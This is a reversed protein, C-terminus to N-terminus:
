LPRGFKAAFELTGVSELGYIGPHLPDAIIHVDFPLETFPVPLDNANAGERMSHPVAKSAARKAITTATSLSITCFPSSIAKSLVSTFRSYLTHPTRLDEARQEFLVHIEDISILIPCTTSAPWDSCRQKLLNHLAGFDYALLNQSVNENVLLKSKAIVDLYFKHRRVPTNFLDYFTRVVHAYSVKQTAPFLHEAQLHAQTFISRLFSRLYEMCEEEM